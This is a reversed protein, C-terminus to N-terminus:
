TEINVKLKWLKCYESFTNLAYQLHENTEAFILTDDQYLLVLLKMYLYINDEIIIQVSQLGNLDHECLFRSIM